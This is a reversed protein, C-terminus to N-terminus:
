PDPTVAVLGVRAGDEDRRLGFAIRGTLPDGDSRSALYRGTARGAAGPRVDVESLRYGTTENAAFQSRYERLVAPRGRQRDAPTVRAVDATMVRKLAGADERAYARAFADLAAQIEAAGLPAGPDDEGAAAALAVAAAIGALVAAAGAALVGLRRRGRPASLRATPAPAGAPLAATTRALVATPAGNAGGAPEPRPRAARPRSSGAAAGAAEVLDGASRFRDEPRKALARAILEDFAPPVGGSASAKPAPDRLHALMTAAVTGRSFPPRGTLATHLVCGLAYVDTRPSLDTGEFQEPAMFDVTGMWGGTTTLRSDTATDLTLGFDALYAHGSGSPDTLLVNAPKVDRHVLGAAHAADLASGAQAVISVALAPDLGGSAAILRELDGGEVWRMVLYLQGDLEGAEYVPIVNPHDLAAALRTEREFRAHFSPDAAREPAVVKLAVARGLPLQTARYVIGMGGRGAIAEIRCDGFTSELALESV